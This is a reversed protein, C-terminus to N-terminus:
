QNAMAKELLYRIGVITGRIKMNIQGFMNHAIDASEALGPRPEFLRVVQPSPKEKWCKETSKESRVHQHV